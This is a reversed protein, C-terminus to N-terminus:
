LASATIKLVGGDKPEHLGAQTVKSLDFEFQVKGQITPNAPDLGLATQETSAASTLKIGVESTDKELKTGTYKVEAKLKGDVGNIGWVRYALFEPSAVTGTNLSLNPEPLELDPNGDSSVNVGGVKEVNGGTFPDIKYTIAEYTQLYVVPPVDVNITVEASVQAKAPASFISNALTAIGLISALTLIKKM